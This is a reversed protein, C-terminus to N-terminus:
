SENQDDERSVRRSFADGETNFYYETRSITPYTDLRVFLRM